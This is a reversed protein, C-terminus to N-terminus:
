TWEADRAQNMVMSGTLIGTKLRKRKSPMSVHKLFVFPWAVGRSSGRLLM